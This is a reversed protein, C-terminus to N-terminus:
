DERLWVLMEGPERNGWAFYPIARVPVSEVRTDNNHYLRNQWDDMVRRQAVADIVVVGDLLDKEFRAELKTDGKIALDNLNAGNDAQELCYVIPGRQWAVRGCNPRVNPHAQVREVPMPLRLEVRDGPQWLRRIRVYGRDMAAAIPAEDNNVRLEPARCWAPMRLALCFESDAPVDIELTVQEQWPYRTIQKITM